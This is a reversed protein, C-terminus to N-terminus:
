FNLFFTAIMITLLAMIQNAFAVGFGHPIRLYHACAQRMSWTAQGLGIALVIWGPLDSHVDLLFVVMMGLFVLCWGLPLCLTCVRILHMRKIRYRRLTQQLVLFGGLMAAFYILAVGLLELASSSVFSEGFDALFETLSRARPRWPAFARSSAIILARLANLTLIASVLLMLLPLLRPPDHMDFETWLRKPRAALRWTRFFSRIPRKRWQYEFLGKQRRIHLDLVNNWTFNTGCEPCRQDQLGYLHYDCSPCRLGHVPVAVRWDFTLGCAPCIPETQGRLDQGCRACGVDFPIM